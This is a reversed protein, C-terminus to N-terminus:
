CSHWFKLRVHCFFGPKHKYVGEKCTFQSISDLEIDPFSLSHLVSIMLQFHLYGCPRLIGVAIFDAYCFYAFGQIPFFRLLFYQFFSGLEEVVAHCFFVFAVSLSFENGFFLVFLLITVWICFSSRFTHFFSVSLPLGFKCCFGPRFSVSSWSATESSASSSESPIVMFGLCLSYPEPTFPFLDKVQCSDYHM